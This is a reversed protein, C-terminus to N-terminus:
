NVGTLLHNRLEGEAFFRGPSTVSPTLDRHLYVRDAPITLERQLRQVLRILENIQRETFARRDGNGVLCIGIVNGPPPQNGPVLPQVGPLQENWRYGVHIVGDGLGNGNGILFHYALGKYGMRQHVRHVDAADGAPHGFHDIVIADWEGRELPADIDFIPDITATRGFMGVNAALFGSRGTPSEGSIMMLLGVALTMAAAFSAWVVKTRLSM